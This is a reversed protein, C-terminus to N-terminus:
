AVASDLSLGLLMDLLTEDFVEEANEGGAVDIVPEFPPPTLSGAVHVGSRFHPNFFRLSSDLLGGAANFTRVQPTVGPGTGILIEALGDGNSDTTGAFLGAIMDRDFAFFESLIQGPIQGNFVRVHPGGGAGAATIVEDSGDGNVDGAAVTVGGTFNSGYAFFDGLSRATQGDLVRVHPGGGPGAGTIIEAFGDDNVDGAAVSVGGTFAEVYAFFSLLEGGTQGDFVKVHPGGGAGAGTIIDAREDGNVDGAAIFVGGTFNTGYAFFNAILQGSLGDFVKVHPGGGLGAATIVDAAGDGNVDGAAVRVGGRFASDYALFNHLVEGTESNRVIVQPPMSQIGIGSGAGFVEINEDNRILGLASGIGIESGEPPDTLLVEFSEHAELLLDGQVAITIVQQTEGNGFIVTGSPLIGGVFDEADATIASVFFNVSTAGSSNGGRVVLFTFATAGSDGELKNADLAILDFTTPAFELEVAGIDIGGAANPVDAIDVIRPFGRQDTDLPQEDPGLALDNNGADIAPSDALLNHTLTPGGNDALNPDLITALDIPSGGNGDEQGVINGNIGNDLGGSSNPDGILNFASNDSVLEGAIDNPSDDTAITNGAVLTNFLETFPSSEADLTFIGGGSGSEDGDADAVNLVITSNISILFGTNRIGGGDDDASNGSVTSNVLYLSGRSNEIGGGDDQASNGSITSRTITVSGSDNYIGGGDGDAATNGQITSDAVFLSGLDTSIGGGSSESSNGSVTTFLIEVTGSQNDIGGGTGSSVNNTITSGSIHVTGSSLDEGTVSLTFSDGEPLVIVGTLRFNALGGGDDGATNNSIDTGHIALAGNNNFVGGGDLATSNGTITGGTITMTGSNFIGGGSETTSPGGLARNNEIASSDITATGNFTFIGGGSFSATNQDVRTNGLVLGTPFFPHEEYYIGGGNQSTINLSITSGFIEVRGNTNSIGGGTGAASNGDITSGSIHITGISLQDATANQTISTDSIAETPGVFLFNAVGGGAGIASNNSITTNHIALAGGLNYIGGGDFQTSNDTITSNTITLTGRNLIGGGGEAFSVDTLYGHRITLNDITATTDSVIQFVRDEAMGAEAAAQVIVQPEQPDNLGQITVNKYVVIGAETHIGDDGGNVLILDGAVAADIAAQITNHQGGGDDDVLLTTLLLRDELIEASRRFEWSTLRPRPSYGRLNRTGSKRSGALVQLLWRSCIWGLNM